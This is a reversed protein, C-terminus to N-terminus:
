IPEAGKEPDEEINEPYRVDEEHILMNTFRTM